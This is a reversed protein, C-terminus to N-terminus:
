KTSADAIEQIFMEFKLLDNDMMSISKGKKYSDLKPGWLATKFYVAAVAAINVTAGVTNHVALAFYAACVVAWSCGAVEMDYNDALFRAYKENIVEMDEQTIERDRENLSKIDEDNEFKDLLPKLEPSIIEINNYVKDSGELFANKIQANDGSLVEKKFREFFEPNDKSVSAAFQEFRDNFIKHQADPAAAIAEGIADYSSINRAFDGYGFFVSKFLEEGSYEQASRSTMGNAVKGVKENHNTSDMANEIDSSCSALFLNLTLLVSVTRM